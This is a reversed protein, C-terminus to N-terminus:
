NEGMAGLDLPKRIALTEKESVRAFPIVGHCKVYKLINTFMNWDTDAHKLDVCIRDFGALAIIESITQSGSTDM